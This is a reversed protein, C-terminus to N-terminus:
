MAALQVPFAGATETEQIFNEPLGWANAQAGIAGTPIFHAGDGLFGGILAGIIQVIVAEHTRGEPIERQVLVATIFHMYQIGPFHGIGARSYEAASEPNGQRGLGVHGDLDLPKGCRSSLVAYQHRMEVFFLLM